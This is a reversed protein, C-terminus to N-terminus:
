VWRHGVGYVDKRGRRLPTVVRGRRGRRCNDCDRLMRAKHLNVQVVCRGDPPRMFSPIALLHVAFSVTLLYTIIHMLQMSPRRNSLTPWGTLVNNISLQM